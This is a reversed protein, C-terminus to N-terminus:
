VEPEPSRRRRLAALYLPVAVPWAVLLLGGWWPERRAFALAALAAGTVAGLLLVAAAPAVVLWSMGSGALAAVVFVAAGVVILTFAAGAVTRLM